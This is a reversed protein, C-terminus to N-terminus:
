SVLALGPLCAFDDLLQITRREGLRLGREWSKGGGRRCGTTVQDLRILVSGVDAREVQLLFRWSGRGGM